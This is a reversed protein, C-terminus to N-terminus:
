YRKLIESLRYRRIGSFSNSYRTRESSTYPRNARREGDQSILYDLSKKGPGSIILCVLIGIVLLHYEYGEGKQNGFWNMFFGFPVHAKFIMGLVLIVFASAFLRTLLGALIFLTGIFLLFINLFAIIAPLGISAFFKMSAEYGGGGFLGMLLQAGHPWLVLAFTFRLILPVTDANLQTPSHALFKM